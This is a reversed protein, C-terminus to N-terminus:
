QIRVWAFPRLFCDQIDAAATLERAVAGDGLIRSLNPLRFRTRYRLPAGHPRPALAMEPHTGHPPTPAVRSLGARATRCRPGPVPPTQTPLGAEHRQGFSSAPAEKPASQNHLNATGATTRM